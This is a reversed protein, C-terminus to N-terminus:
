SSATLAVQYCQALRHTQFYVVTHALVHSLMHHLSQESLVEFKAEWAEVAQSHEAKATEAAKKAATLEELLQGEASSQELM